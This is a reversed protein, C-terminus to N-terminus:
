VNGEASTKAKQGHVQYKHDHKKVFWNYFVSLNSHPTANEQLQTQLNAADALNDM